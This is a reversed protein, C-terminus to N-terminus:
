IKIGNIAVVGNIQPIKGKIADELGARMTIFSM